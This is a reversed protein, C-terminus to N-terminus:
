FIHSFDNFHAYILLFIKVHYFNEVSTHRLIIFQIFSKFNLFISCSNLFYDKNQCAWFIRKDWWITSYSNRDVFLYNSCPNRTLLASKMLNHASWSCNTLLVKYLLFCHSILFTSISTDFQGFPVKGYNSPHKMFNFLANNIFPALFPYFSSKLSLNELYSPM